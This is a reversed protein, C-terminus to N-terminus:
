SGPVGERLGHKDGGGDWGGHVRGRRTSLEVHYVYLVTERCVWGTFGGLGNRRWWRTAVSVAVKAGKVRRHRMGDLPYGFYWRTSGVKGPRCRLFILMSM